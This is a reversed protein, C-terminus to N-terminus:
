LREAAHLALVENAGDEILSARVDRLLKEIPYEQTPRFSASCCSSIL